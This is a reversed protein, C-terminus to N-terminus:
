DTRTTKYLWPTILHYVAPKVVLRWSYICRVQRKKRLVIIGTPAISPHCPTPAKPRAMCLSVPRAVMACYYEYAPM